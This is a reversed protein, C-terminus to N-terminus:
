RGAYGPSGTTSVAESRVCVRQAGSTRITVMHDAWTRAPAVATATTTGGLGTFPLDTRQGRTKM